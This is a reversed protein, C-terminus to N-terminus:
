IKPTTLGSEYNNRIVISDQDHINIGNWNYGKIINNEIYNGCSQLQLSGSIRIGISGNIINNNKFISNNSHTRQDITYISTQVGNKAEIINNSFENFSSSDILEVIRQFSTDLSRITLYKFRFYNAGNLQLVHNSNITITPNTLVVSTSDNTVSQFTITNVSSAGSIQPISLQETYTGSNVNLVVPGSVGNAILANVAATFSNYNAGSSGITYTGNLPTQATMYIISFMLGTLIPIIKNM